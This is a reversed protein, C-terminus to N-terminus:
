RKADLINKINSASNLVDEPSNQTNVKVFEQRSLRDKSVKLRMYKILFNEYIPELGAEKLISNNFMMVNILSIEKDTLHTKLDITENEANFLERSHFAQNNGEISTFYEEIPNSMKKVM